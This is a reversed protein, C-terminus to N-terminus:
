FTMTLYLKKDVIYFILQEGENWIYNDKHPSIYIHEASNKEEGYNQGM